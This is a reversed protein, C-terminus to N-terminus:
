LLLRLQKRTELLYVKTDQETLAFCSFGKEMDQERTVGDFQNVIADIHKLVLEM